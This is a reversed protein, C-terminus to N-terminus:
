DYGVLEVFGRGGVPKEGRQGSFTVEGEWYVPAGIKSVDFEADLHVPEVKLSLSLPIVQLRWGMPYTVGTRPSTWSSLPTVEIDEWQLYQASGNPLVYTGYRRAPEGTTPDFLLSLMVETNDDLQLSFWDWGVREQAFNGWQQDMWAEGSVQRTIGTVTLTGQVKLRTRSYYYSESLPSMGVIGDEGHLVPAKTEELNLSLAYEGEVAKLSYRGGAGEISWDGVSIAFGRAPREGRGLAVREAKVVGDEDSTALALHM